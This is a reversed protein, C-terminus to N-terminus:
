GVTAALSKATIAEVLDLLDVDAGYQAVDFIPASPDTNIAIILESGTISEVHEPAGSIGLALYLKPKVTYGSKGVLRTAPLWGQDVIPRSACVVGGLAHAVEEVLELDDASQLGRGIAILIPAKTIDVDGAEPEVYQALKVRLGALEPDAQRNLTPAQESRGQEPRFAGPVMTMLTTPEPLLGEAMIKGGCIQSIFGLSGDSVTVNRCQSVLPLDLRASLGSAVDMGISTHGLLMARPGHQQIQPTLAELYADPTFEVLDPHDVYLVRDAALDDALKQADHGLLLAVVDGQSASALVRAAALMVYSIDSVKGQLHEILVFIEQNMMTGRECFEM